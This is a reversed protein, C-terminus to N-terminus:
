LLFDLYCSVVVVIASTTSFHVNQRVQVIAIEVSTLTSETWSSLVVVLCTLLSHVGYIIGVKCFARRGKKENRRGRERVKRRGVQKFEGEQTEVM